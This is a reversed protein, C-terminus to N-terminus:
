RMGARSMVCFAFARCDGDHLAYCQLADDNKACGSVCGASFNPLKARNEPTDGFHDLLCQRFVDCVIACREARAAREAPTARRGADADLWLAKGLMLLVAASAFVLPPALKRFARRM